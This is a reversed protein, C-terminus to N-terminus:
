SNEPMPKLVFPASPKSALCALLSDELWKHSRAMHKNFETCTRVIEERLMDERAAAGRYDALSIFDRIEDLAARTLDIIKAALAEAHRDREPLPMM